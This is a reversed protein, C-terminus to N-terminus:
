QRLFEALVPLFLLLFLVLFPATIVTGKQSNRKRSGEKEKREEGDNEAGSTTCSTLTGVSVPSLHELRSSIQRLLRLWAGTFGQSKESIAVEVRCRGTVQSIGLCLAHCGNWGPRDDGTGTGM